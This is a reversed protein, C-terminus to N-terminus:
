YLFAQAHHECCMPMTYKIQFAFYAPYGLLDKYILSMGFKLQYFNTWFYMWRWM